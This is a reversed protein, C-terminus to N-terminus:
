PPSGFATVTAGIAAPYGGAGSVTPDTILAGPLIQGNLMTAVTLTGGSIAGLFAAETHDTVNTGLRERGIPWMVVFDPSKPEPVRNIEGRIVPVAAPLIQTLFSRLAAFLQTEAQNNTIM